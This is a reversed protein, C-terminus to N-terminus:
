IIFLNNWILKSAPATGTFSPYMLDFSFLISTYTAYEKNM